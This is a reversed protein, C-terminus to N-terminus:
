LEGRPYVVSGNDSILGCVVDKAIFPNVPLKVFKSKLDITSLLNTQILLCGLEVETDKHECGRWIGTVVPHGKAVMRHLCDASPLLDERLWLLYDYNKATRYVTQVEKDEVFLYDVWFGNADLSLVTLFFATITFTVKASVLIRRVM